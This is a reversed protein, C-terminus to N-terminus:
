EFYESEQVKRGHADVTYVPRTKCNRAFHGPKGCNYCSGSNTTYPRQAVGFPPRQSNYPRGREGFGNGRQNQRKWQRPFRNSSDTVRGIIEDDESANVSNTSVNKAFLSTGAEDAIGLGVIDDLSKNVWAEATAFIKPNKAGKQIQAKLLNDRAPGLECLDAQAKLRQIFDAFPEDTKQKMNQLQMLYALSDVGTEFHKDMWQIMGKYAVDDDVGLPVDFKELSKQVVSGGGLYLLQLKKQASLKRSSLNFYFDIARKYKKWEILQEHANAKESLKPLKPMPFGLNRATQMQEAQEDEDSDVPARM